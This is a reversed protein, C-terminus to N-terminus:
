LYTMNVWIQGNKHEIFRATCQLWNPLIDQGFEYIVRM